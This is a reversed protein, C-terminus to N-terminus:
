FERCNYEERLSKITEAIEKMEKKGSTISQAVEHKWLFDMYSAKELMNKKRADGNAYFLLHNHYKRILDLPFKDDSM